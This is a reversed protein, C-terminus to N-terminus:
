NTIIWLWLSEALQCSSYHFSSASSFLAFEFSTMFLFRFLLLLHLLHLPTSSPFRSFSPSLLLPIVSFLLLYFLCFFLIFSLSYTDYYSSSLPLHLSFFLPVPFLLGSLHLHIVVVPALFFFIFVSSFNNNKLFLVFSKAHWNAVRHYLTFNIM